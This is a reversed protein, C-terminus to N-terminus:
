DSINGADEGELHASRVNASTWEDMDSTGNDRILELFIAANKKIDQPRAVIKREVIMAEATHIWINSLHELDPLLLQLHAQPLPAMPPGAALSSHLVLNDTSHRRRASQCSPKVCFWENCGSADHNAGDPRFAEAAAVPEKDKKKRGLHLLSMKSKIMSVPEVPVPNKTIFGYWIDVANRRAGYGKTEWFRQAQRLGGVTLIATYVEDAPRDKLYGKIARELGGAYSPPRLRRSFSSIVVTWGLHVQLLTQDDYMQLVKQEIPNITFAQRNLPVGNNLLHQLHLERYTEFFHTLTFVIAILRHKMRKHQPGFDRLQVETTKLFIEKVTQRSIMTALKSAVHLRHWIGCIYRLDVDAPNSAPYLRLSYAPLSNAVHYRAIPNENLTVLTHFSKSVLRLNLMDHIPLPAIIQEQLENPLSLFLDSISISHHIGGQEAIIHEHNEVLIPVAPTKHVTTYRARLSGLSGTFSPRRHTRLSTLDHGLSRKKQDSPRLPIPEHLDSHQRLVLPLDYTQPETQTTSATEAAPAASPTGNQANANLQKLKNYYRDSAFETIHLPDM